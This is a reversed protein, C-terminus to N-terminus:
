VTKFSAMTSELDKGLQNLQTASLQVQQAGEATQLSISQISNINRNIEESTAQQEEAATAIQTNMAQINSVAQAISNLADGANKSQALTDKVQEQNALMVSVANDTGQQLSNVSAEIQGTAEQTRQALARVEDAVVAFGRGQEGARAAEIAANLALLNTQEAISNIVEMVQEIKDSEAKLGEIVQSSNQVDNAMAQIALIANEVISKGKKAEADGSDAARSAEAANRAVESMSAEMETMATAIQAIANSQENAGASAQTAITSMQITAEAVDIANQKASGVLLLFKNILLNFSTALRGVEDNTTVKAPTTLDNSSEISQVTEQLNSIPASLATAVFFSAGVGLVIMVAILGYIFNIVQTNGQEIKRILQLTSNAEASQQIETTQNSLQNLQGLKEHNSELDAVIYVLVVILVSLISINVALLKKRLSNFFDM